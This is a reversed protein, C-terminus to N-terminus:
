DQFHKRYLSDVAHLMLDAFSGRYIRKLKKLREKTEGNVIVVIPTPKNPDNEVLRRANVVISALWLVKRDQSPEHPLLDYYPKGSYLKLAIQHLATHHSDCLSVQPGDIGGYARPVIHHRHEYKNPLGGYETFTTGCVWCHQLFTSQVSAGILKIETSSLTRLTNRDKLTPSTDM